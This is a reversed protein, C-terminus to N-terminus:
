TFDVAFNDSIAVNWAALIGLMELDHRVGMMEWAPFFLGQHDKMSLDINLGPLPVLRNYRCGNTSTTMLGWKIAVQAPSNLREM